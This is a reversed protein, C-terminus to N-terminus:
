KRYKFRERVSATFLREKRKNWGRKLYSPKYVYRYLKYTSLIRNLLKYMTM